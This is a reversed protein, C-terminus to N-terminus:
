RKEIKVDLNQCTKLSIDAKFKLESKLDTTVKYSRLFKVLVMRIALMAYYKGICDRPGESFPLFGHSHRESVKEASFREPNFEESDAGWITKNRHLNFLNIILTVNKPVLLENLEFQEETKRAIYPIPPLLRMSEQIVMELYQMSELKERSINKDDAPFVQVIEQYVKEQHNQHVALLFLTYATQLSNTEYGAAIFTFIHDHIEEDSFKRDIMQDILNKHDGGEPTGMEVDKQM